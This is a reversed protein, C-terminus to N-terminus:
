LIMFILVNIPHISIHYAHAVLAILIPTVVLRVAAKFEPTNASVYLQSDVPKLLFLDLRGSNVLESFDNLGRVFIFGFVGIFLNYVCSILILEGVTWGYVSGTRLTVLYISFLNFLMWLSSQIVTGFLANARYVFFQAFSFKIFSSYLQFFRKMIVPGRRHFKKVWKEVYNQLPAYVWHAM